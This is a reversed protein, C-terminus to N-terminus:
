RSLVANSTLYAYLLAESIDEVASYPAPRDEPARYVEPSGCLPCLYNEDPAVYDRGCARCCMIVADKQHTCVFLKSM